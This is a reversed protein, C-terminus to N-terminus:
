RSANRHFFFALPRQNCALLAADLKESSRFLTEARHVKALVVSFVQPAFALSLFLATPAIVAASRDFRSLRPASRAQRFVPLM